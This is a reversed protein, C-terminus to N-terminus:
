GRRVARVVREVFSASFALALGDERKIVRALGVDVMVTGLLAVEVTVVRALVTRVLALGSAAAGVFLFRVARPSIAPGDLLFWSPFDVLLRVVFSLGFSFNSPTTNFFDVTVVVVVVLV